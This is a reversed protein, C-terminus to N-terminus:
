ARRFLISSTFRLQMEEPFNGMEFPKVVGRIPAAYPYRVSETYGCMQLEKCLKGLGIFRFPLASDYYSQLSFFDDEGKGVVDELLIFEPVTREILSLLSANSGFYQLVSNCYLLNCSSSLDSWSVYDVPTSHLGSMKMYNVVEATEVIRYSSVTNKPLSNQLYDWCWGSSGGFDVISRPHTTACILPLNTPRPPMAIGYQQFENRYDSIQQTIRQLWREGGLGAGGVASSAKCADEWTPYIGNWIHDPVMAQERKAM